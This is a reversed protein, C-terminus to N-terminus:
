RDIQVSVRHLFPHQPAPGRRVNTFTGGAMGALRTEVFLIEEGQRFDIHAHLKGDYTLTVGSAKPFETRLMDRLQALHEGLSRDIAAKPFPEVQGSPKGAGHQASSTMGNAM